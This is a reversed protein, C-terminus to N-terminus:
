PMLRGVQWGDAQKEYVFRDHLRSTRGQWFEIRHPIVRYGGWYEPRPVEEPFREEMEQIRNELITRDEIPQSQLSAWAGLKSGRSRSAFYRDSLEAELKEISGKIRVQRKLPEWWFVMSAKPHETIQHAKHSQYNTYFHLSREDVGKLLVMRSDPFGQKDLTSVCVANAEPCGKDVALKLWDRFLDIPDDKLHEAHLARSGYDSSEPIFDM